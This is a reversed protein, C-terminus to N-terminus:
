VRVEAISIVTLSELGTETSIYVWRINLVPGSLDPRLTMGYERAGSKGKQYAPRPDQALVQTILESLGLVSTQRTDWLSCFERAGNEFVVNLASPAEEAFQNVAEGQMDVYPVYPKIDLIPTGDLLDLGSVDIAVHETDIREIKAISLGIPNPRVPSRTAFVGMGKNGGLRPPRVKPRWRTELSDHFVFQLWIHSCQELGQLCDAQAYEGLLEIRSHLGSALGPQRPIGFKELYPSRVRAIFELEISM